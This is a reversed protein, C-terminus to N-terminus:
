PMVSGASVLPGCLIHCGWKKTIPKKANAHVAITHYGSKPQYKLDRLNYEGGSAAYFAQTLSYM